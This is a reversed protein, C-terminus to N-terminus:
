LTSNPLTYPSTFPNSFSSPFPNSLPIPFPAYLNRRPMPTNTKNPPTRHQHQSRSNPRPHSSLHPQKRGPQFPPQRHPALTRRRCRYARFPPLPCQQRLRRSCRFDPSGVPFLPPYMTQIKAEYHRTAVRSTTLSDLFAALPFRFVGNCFYPIGM